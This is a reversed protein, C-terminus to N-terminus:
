PFKRGSRPTTRTLSAPPEDFVVMEEFKDAMYHVQAESARNSGPDFLFSTFAEAAAIHREGSKEIGRLLRQAEHASIASKEMAMSLFAKAVDRFIPYCIYLDQWCRLCLYFYHQWSPDKIDELLALSLTFLGTNFFSTFDAETYTARYIFVLDKLQNVSVAYVAKPHSDASALSVFRVSRPVTIFPRLIITAVVHFM